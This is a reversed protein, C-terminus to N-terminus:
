QCEVLAPIRGLDGFRRDHLLLPGCMKGEQEGVNVEAVWLGKGEEKLGKGKMETWYKDLESM